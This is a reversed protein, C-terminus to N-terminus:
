STLRQVLLSSDSIYNATSTGYVAVTVNHVGMSLDQRVDQLPIMFHATEDGSYTGVEARLSTDTIGDVRFYVSITSWFTIPEIHAWAMFSFYVSENIGLEFEITLGSFTLYTFTPDSSFTTGNEKYWTTQVPTNIIQNELNSVNLWVFGGLGLGAAGLILGIVGLVTGGKGL